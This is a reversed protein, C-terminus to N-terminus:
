LNYIILSHSPCEGPPRKVGSLQKIQWEFSDDITRFLSENLQRRVHDENQVLYNVNQDPTKNPSQQYQQLISSMYEATM